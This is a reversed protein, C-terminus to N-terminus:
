EGDTPHVDVSNLHFYDWPRTLSGTGFVNGIPTLTDSPTVHDTSKWEFLLEKSQLDVQQFGSGYVYGDPPGGWKTLDMAMPYYFSMIATGNVILFEHIDSGQANEGVTTVSDVINLTSDMLIYNGVGHLLHASTGNWFSFCPEGDLLHVGFNTAKQFTNNVYVIDGNHDTILLSREPTDAGFVDFVIYGPTGSGNVNLLPPHLDPRSVFNHYVGHPLNNYNPDFM